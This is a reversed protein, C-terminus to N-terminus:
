TIENNKNCFAKPDRPVGQPKSPDGQSGQIFIDYVFSITYMNYRICIIDYVFSITHLHYRICIFYAYELMFQAYKLM